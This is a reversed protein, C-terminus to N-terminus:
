LPSAASACLKIWRMLDEFQQFSTTGTRESLSGTTAVLSKDLQGM